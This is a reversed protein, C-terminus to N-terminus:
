LIAFLIASMMDNATYQELEYAITAVPMCRKSQVPESFEAGPSLEILQIMM